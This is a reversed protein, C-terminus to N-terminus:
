TRWARCRRGSAQAKRYKLVSRYYWMWPDRADLEAAKELEDAAADFKKLPLITGRWDANRWRMIGQSGGGTAALDQLAQDRHEPIRAMVDGLM